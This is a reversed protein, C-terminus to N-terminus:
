KHHPRPTPLYRLSLTQSRDPVCVSEVVRVGVGEVVRVGVCYGRLFPSNGPLAAESASTRPAPLDSGTGPLQHGPAHPQSLAEWGWSQPRRHVGVELSPQLAASHPTTHVPWPQGRHEGAATAEGSGLGSTGQPTLQPPAMSSGVRRKPIGHASVLPYAAWGM